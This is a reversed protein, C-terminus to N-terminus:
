SFLRLALRSGPTIGHAAMTTHVSELQAAIQAYAADTLPKKNDDVLRGDLTNAIQRAFDLFRRFANPGAPAHPVDLTIALGRTVLDRMTEAVFRGGDLNALAFLEAGADDRRRYHGDAELRCGAAEALTRIKTGPFAGGDAKVLNFGIQVDVDACFRDLAQANSASGKPDPCEAVGALASALAQASAAFSAIETETAAGSRNALQLGVRLREYRGQDGGPTWSDAGLDFGDWLVPRQVDGLYAAIAARVKEGSVPEACEVDVVYDVGEVLGARPAAKLAPDVASAGVPGLTHEVRETASSDAEDQRPAPAVRPGGGVAKEQVVDAPAGSHRGVATGAKRRIKAEQWKNFGFVAAVVLVGIGLLGLQLDSM